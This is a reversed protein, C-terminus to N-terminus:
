RPYLLATATALIGERRGTFGLGDSTTASVSVPAGAAEGLVKQAEERRPGFKPRSGIFQVALNGIGFGAEWVIGAAEALLAAGSAGAREPRSTGITDAGFHVGLDGLGAASFLADCCAHAVADGDSHGSLGQEGPWHLGALWLERREEPAAFAHVDHGIGTRPMLLPSGSSPLAASTESSRPRAPSVTSNGSNRCESDQQDVLTHATLLDTETTIKLAKAHGPVVAVPVGMDEAIMAEDTLREAAAEPLHGIHAFAQQLFGLSFGQPTQVARLDARPVTRRVEEAQTGGQECPEVQKITDTVALAPVVARCGPGVAAFVRSFVEAPTLPRAADHILVATQEPEWRLSEGHASVAEIGARVSAPRSGGGAVVVVEAGSAAGLGEASAALEAFAQEDPPLVIVVVGLELEPGAADLAHALIPRGALKVSAKPVGRGLRQGSGAAVVVLARHQAHEAEPRRTQNLEAPAAQPEVQTM